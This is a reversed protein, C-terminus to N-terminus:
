ARGPGNECCWLFSPKVCAVLSLAVLSSPGMVFMQIWRTLRPMGHGMLAALLEATEEGPKEVVEPAENTVEAEYFQRQARSALYAGVTMSLAGAIAALARAVLVVM